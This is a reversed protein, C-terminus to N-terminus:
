LYPVIKCASATQHKAGVVIEVPAPVAGFFSLATVVENAIECGGQDTPASIALMLDLAITYVCLHRTAGVALSM